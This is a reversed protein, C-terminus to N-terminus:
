ICGVGEEKVGCLRLYVPTEKAHQQQPFMPLVWRRLGIAREDGFGQNNSARCAGSGSRMKGLYFNHGVGEMVYM